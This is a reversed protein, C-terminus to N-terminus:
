NAQKALRQRLQNYLVVGYGAVVGGSVWWQCKATFLLPCAVQVAALAVLLFAVRRMSGPMVAWGSNLKGTQELKQHRRWAAQQVLGFSAGIVAGALLAAATWFASIIGLQMNHSIHHESRGRGSWPRDM